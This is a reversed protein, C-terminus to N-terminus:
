LRELLATLESLKKIEYDPRLADYRVGDPNFHCTLIGANKGGAIDSSLSDGVIVAAAKDFDPIRKFCAEFFRRDPKVFGIKESIFINKFYGAIGASRIRGDQVRATGNSVLYLSYKKYAKELFDEAGDIFYHGRGLLDEYLAKAESPSADLGLRDFLIKFRMVLIQERTLEGRELKKWMEANIRSYLAVTDDAPIIGLGCLAGRIAVAEARKFDLITDDLDLLVYKIM